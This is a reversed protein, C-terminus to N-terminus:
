NSGPFLKFSIQQNVLPNMKKGKEKPLRSTNNKWTIKRCDLHITKGHLRETTQIYQKEMYDKLLRSTNNKWTIKLKEFQNMDIGICLSPVM